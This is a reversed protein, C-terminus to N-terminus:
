APQALTTPSTHPSAIGMIKALWPPPHGQLVQQLRLLEARAEGGLPVKVPHIGARVVKAAAPGGISQVYLLHCDQILQTRYANRDEAQEYGATDRIAVLRVNQSSVQYILFRLCAGFHGNLLEGQNSAVAVRVFGSSQTLPPEIVPLEEHIDAHPTEGHLCQLARLLADKSFELTDLEHENLHQLGQRLDKLSLQALKTENLPESVRHLLIRLLRQVGLGPLAKAALGVRLALERSLPPSSASM